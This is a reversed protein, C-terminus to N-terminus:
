QRAQWWRALIADARAGQALWAALAAVGAPDFETGVGAQLVGLAADPALAPRYPRPRLLATYTEAVRLIRAGLPIWAGSLGFPYGRGDYTEHHHLVLPILAQLAPFAQLLEASCLPHRRVLQREAPTLPGAKTLIAPPVAALGLNCLLAAQRVRPVLEASGLATALAVAAQASNYALGPGAPDHAELAALLDLLAAPLDLLPEWPTASAAPGDPTPLLARGPMGRRGLRAGLRAGLDRTALQASTLGDLGWHTLLPTPQPARGGPNTKDNAAM